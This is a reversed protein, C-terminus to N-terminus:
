LGIWTPTVSIPHTDVPLGAENTIVPEPTLAQLSSSHFPGASLEQLNVDAKLTASISPFDRISVVTALQDPQSAVSVSPMTKMDSGPNAYVQFQDPAPEESPGCTAGMPEPPLPGQFNMPIASQQSMDGSTIIAPEVLPATTSGEPYPLQQQEMFVPEELISVPALIEQPQFDPREGGPLCSQDYAEPSSIPVIPQQYSSQLCADAQESIMSQESHLPPSTATQEYLVQHELVQSQQQFNQQLIGPPYGEQGPSLAPQEQSIAVSQEFGSQQVLPMPQEYVHQEYVPQGYLAQNGVPQGYLSQEYAQQEYTQQEYTPQVYATQNSVPQQVVPQEHYTTQQFTQTPQSLSDDVRAEGSGVEVMEAEEEEQEEDLEEEDDDAEDGELGSEAAGEFDGEALKMGLKAVKMINRANGLKGFMKSMGGGAPKPGVVARTSAAAAMASASKVADASKPKLFKSAPSQAPLRNPRPPEGPRDWTSLGLAENVYFRVMDPTQLEKWGNPLSGIPKDWRSAGTLGNFFYVRGEPSKHEAWGVPLGGSRLVASPNPKVHTRQGTAKYMYWITGFVNRRITWLNVSVEPNAPLLIPLDSDTVFFAKDHSHSTAASGSTYCWVCFHTQTQGTSCILCTYVSVNSPISAAYFNRTHLQNDTDNFRHCQEYNSIATARKNPFEFSECTPILTCVCDSNAAFPKKTASPRSNALYQGQGPISATNSNVTSTPHRTPLKNANSPSYTWIRCPESNSALQDSKPQPKIC